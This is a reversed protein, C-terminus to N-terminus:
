IIDRIIHEIEIADDLKNKARNEQASKDLCKCIIDLQHKTLRAITDDLGREELECLLEDDDIEEFVEELDVSVIIKTM